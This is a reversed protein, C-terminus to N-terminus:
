RDLVVHYAGIAKAEDVVINKIAYGAKVDIQLTVQLFRAGVFETVSRGELTETESSV